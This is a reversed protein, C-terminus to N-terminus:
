SACSTAASCSACCTPTWRCRRRAGNPWRPTTSTCGSASGASCCRAPSRRPTSPTSRSWGCGGRGCTAAAAGEARPRRVRRAPVRPHGRAPDPLEPLPQRGRAPQRRAPAAAVPRHAPRPPAQAAAARARRGRPLGDHVHATGALQATVLAEVEDPDPVFADLTSSARPSEQLRLVIGDDTWMVEPDCGRGAAAPAELAMAWPAHVQAGFHSLLCVRWDGLEDRFREVVITRDDPVAGAAELQEDLYGLLNDAAWTTSTTARGGATRTRRRPGDDRLERVFAGMAAGLEYPRGPGDGHWFPMKGPQGPAPTVVVRDFTIDEIRWTSAGLLFTEGARSEHVMEEDLEGVRTGDPLFVGFLGRDPITGPNTVALRQAGPGAASRARRHPGLRDAPAARQVRGLPLPGGAPGAIAALVDDTLEAFPRPAGSSPPSTTSRGSTWRSWRWSRSPSCTSRAHAPLPDVRDGRRAHPAHGGRDRAPRRPVQPVAQRAVARRGPPRRPRHAAPRPVGCRPLLGAGGPRGRGHRHRARPQLDGGPRAAPRGQARGRDDAPTGQVAVRPPGHGAGRGPRRPAAAGRGAPRPDTPDLPTPTTGPRGCCSPASGRRTCSTSSPPWGSPWGDPTSSCSRRTTSSCSTSCARTSRRGSARAPRHSAPRAPSSTRGGRRGPRPGVHGRAAGRGRPGAAQCGPTSSRSPAPSPACSARTRTPSATSGASSAPSRTWPASPPPCPSASRAPPLGRGAGRRGAAGGGRAARAVPRPPQRAQDPAMAHIEDIIVTDVDRLRERAKSTLLLYLSEPTTILIDPPAPGHAPAGVPAHRGHARRGRAGPGDRRPTRRGARHGQLPSRLNREVDVALARLPSLYLVKLRRDRPPSPARDDAPRHGVPLRDADQGLRDPRPDPHARRRRDGALGAGPRRDPEAFTTHFWARVAPSFRELVPHPADARVSSPARTM